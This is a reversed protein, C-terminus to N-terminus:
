EMFLFNWRNKQQCLTPRGSLGCFALSIAWYTFDDAVLGLLKFEKMSWM